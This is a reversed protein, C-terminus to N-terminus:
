KHNIMTVNHPYTFYCGYVYGIIGSELDNPYFLSVNMTGKLYRLIYKVGIWKRRKTSSSYM